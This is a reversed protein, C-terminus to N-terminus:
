SRRTRERADAEALPPPLPADEETQRLVFVQSNTRRVLARLTRYGRGAEPYGMADILFCSSKTTVHDIMLEFAHLGGGGSYILEAVENLSTFPQKERQTVFAEAIDASCGPIAALVELPATNVNVRGRLFGSSDATLCDVVKIIKDYSLGAVTALQSLSTYGSQGSETLTVLGTWISEMDYMSLVNGVRDAV